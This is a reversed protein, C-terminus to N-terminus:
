NSTESKLLIEATKYLNQDSSHTNKLSLRNRGMIPGATAFTKEEMKSQYGKFGTRDVSPVASPTRISGVASPSLKTAM